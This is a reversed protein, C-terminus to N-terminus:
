SRRKTQLLLPPFPLPLQVPNGDCVMCNLQQPMAAVFVRATHGCELYCRLAVRGNVPQGLTEGETVARWTM